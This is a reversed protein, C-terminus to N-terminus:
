WGPNQTLKPNLTLEDSPVPSLYDREPKFQFGNPLYKQYPDLFGNADVFLNSGIIIKDNGTADKYAGQLNSGIYKVGFLRKGVILDHARWRAMDDWRFGESALEIRRERRVENIIPSLSPFDWKPDTVIKNIDLHIMGVRDRIVNITKDIDTQTITGLEAKAEAFTLLAETYRYIISGQTGGNYYQTYEPNVGKFLAYGTTSRNDGVSAIPPLRFKMNGIGGPSNIRVDSGRLYLTQSLRPDRNLVERALSDYSMFLPSVSIPKGDVCLYQDILQKSLGIDGQGYPLYRAVTNTIGLTVDYKGWLMVEPNGSYDLKNFLSWYEQGSPGKYLSYSNMGILQDAADAAMQIYAKGDSGQVGFTTGNHYKEWTGEYLCVRAKFLLAIEKNVRFAAASSKSKLNAIAYDLNSIISDIVLKRSDRPNYLEPSDSNLAKSYWPVDGFTKVKTFYLFAKFFKVEGIYNNIETASGIATNSNELFYNARRIDGWDWGSGTAPIPRTGAFRLDPIGPVMNDSNGDIWFTGGGGSKHVPLLTYFSNAYLKLDNETKFFTQPTVTDLPFKDLFDENCSWSLLLGFFFLVRFIYRKM